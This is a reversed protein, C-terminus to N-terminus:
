QSQVASSAIKLEISHINNQIAQKLSMIGQPAVSPDNGPYAQLWQAESINQVAHNARKAAALAESFHGTEFLATASSNLLWPNDPAYQLAWATAERAEIFRKAKLLVWAYDNVGAWNNPYSRLFQKYDAIAADYDGMYGEILGRVYYANPETDGHNEIEINIATMASAFDGRLFSIRALEHHVYPLTPDLTEARLFFENALPLNYATPNSAYFHREGYAFAREASPFLRLSTVEYGARIAEANLATVFALVVVGTVLVRWPNTRIYSVM